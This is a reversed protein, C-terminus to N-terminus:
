KLLNIISELDDIPLNILEMSRILIIGSGQTKLKSPNVDTLGLMTDDNMGLLGRKFLDYIEQLLAIFEFPFSGGAGRYDSQRLGFPNTNAPDAFIVLLCLQRYTLSEATKIYLYAEEKSIRKDFAM